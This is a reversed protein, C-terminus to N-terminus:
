LIFYDIVKISKLKELIKILFIYLKLNVSLLIKIIFRVHRNLIM